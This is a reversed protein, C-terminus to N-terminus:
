HHPHDSGTQLGKRGLSQENALKGLCLMQDAGKPFTERAHNWGVSKEGGSDTKEREEESEIKIGNNHAM